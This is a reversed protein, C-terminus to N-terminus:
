DSDARVVAGVQAGGRIIASFTQRRPYIEAPIGIAPGTHKEVDDSGFGTDTGPGDPCGPEVRIFRIERVGDPAKEVPCGDLAFHENPDVEGGTAAAAAAQVHASLADVSSPIYSHDYYPWVDSLGHVWFSGEANLVGDDEGYVYRNWGFPLKYDRQVSLARFSKDPVIRSSVVVYSDIKRPFGLLVKRFQNGSGQITRADYFVGLEDILICFRRGPAWRMPSAWRIPVNSITADVLGTTHLLHSLAVGFSTKGSGVKGALYVLRTSTFRALFDDAGYFRM